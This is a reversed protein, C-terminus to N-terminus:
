FLFLQSENLEKGFNPIQERILFFIKGKVYDELKNFDRLTSWMVWSNVKIKTDTSIASIKGAPVGGMFVYNIGDQVLCSDNKDFNGDPLWYFGTFSYDIEFKFGYLSIEGKWSKKFEEALGFPENDIYLAPMNDM